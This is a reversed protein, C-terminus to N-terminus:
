TSLALYQLAIDIHTSPYVTHIRRLAFTEARSAENHRDGGSVLIGVSDTATVLGGSSVGVGDTEDGLAGGSRCKM